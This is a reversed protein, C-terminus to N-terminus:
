SPTGEANDREARKKMLKELSTEPPKEFLGNVFQRMESEPSSFRAAIQEAEEANDALSALGAADQLTLGHRRAIDAAETSTIGM